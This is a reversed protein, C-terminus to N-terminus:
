CIVHLGTVTDCVYAHMCACVIVHLNMMGVDISTNCIMVTLTHSMTFVIHGVYINAHSLYCTHVTM